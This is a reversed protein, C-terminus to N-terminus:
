IQRQWKLSANFILALATAVQTSTQKFFRASSNNPGSEKCPSLQSLLKVMVESNVTVESYMLSPVKVMNQM